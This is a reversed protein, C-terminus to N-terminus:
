TLAPEEVVRTRVEAHYRVLEDRLAPRTNVVVVALSVASGDERVSPQGRAEIQSSAPSVRM